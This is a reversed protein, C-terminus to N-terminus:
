LEIVLALGSDSSAIKMNYRRVFKNIPISSVWSAIGSAFTLGLACCLAVKEGKSYDHIPRGNLGLGCFLVADVGMSSWFVFDCIRSRRSATQYLNLEELSLTQSLEEATLRDGDVWQLCGDHDIELFRSDMIQAKAHMGCALALLLILVQHRM